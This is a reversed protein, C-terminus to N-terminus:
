IFVVELGVPMRGVVGDKVGVSHVSVRDIEAGAM